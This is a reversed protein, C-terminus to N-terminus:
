EWGGERRYQALLMRGNTDDTFQVMREYMEVLRVPPHVGRDLMTEFLARAAAYLEAEFREVILHPSGAEVDQASGDVVLTYYSGMHDEVLGELVANLDERGVDTVKIIYESM